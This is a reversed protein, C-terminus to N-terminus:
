FPLDDGCAPQTDRERLEADQVMEEQLRKWNELGEAHNGFELWASPDELYDAECAPCLGHERHICTM